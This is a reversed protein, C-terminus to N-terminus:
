FCRGPEGGVAGASERWARAPGRSTGAEGGRADEPQVARVERWETLRAEYLRELRDGPRMAERAEDEDSTECWLGGDVGAIVRWWRGPEAAERLAEAAGEARAQRVAREHDAAIVAALHTRFHDAVGFEDAAYFEAGCTCWGSGRTGRLGHLRLLALAESAEVSPETPATM